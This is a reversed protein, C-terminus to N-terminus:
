QDQESIRSLQVAVTEDLYELQVVKYRHGSLEVLDDIEPLAPVNETNVEIILDNELDSDFIHDAYFLKNARPQTTDRNIFNLAEEVGEYLTQMLNRWIDKTEVNSTFIDNLTQLVCIEQDTEKLIPAFPNRFGGVLAEREMQLVKDFLGAAEICGRSYVGRPNTADLSGIWYLSSKPPSVSSISYQANAREALDQATVQQLNGSPGLWLYEPIGDAIYTDLLYAAYEANHLTCFMAAALYRQWVIEPVPIPNNFNDRLYEFLSVTLVYTDRHKMGSQLAFLACLIDFGARISRLQPARLMAKGIAYSLYGLRTHVHQNSQILGWGKPIANRNGGEFPNILVGRLLGIRYIEVARTRDHASTTGLYNQFGRSVSYDASHPSNLANESWKVWVESLLQDPYYLIVESIWDM